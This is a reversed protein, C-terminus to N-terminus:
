CMGNRESLRRYMSGASPEVERGAAAASGRETLVMAEVGTAPEGPSVPKTLQDDPDPRTMREAAEAQGDMIYVQKGPLLEALKQMHHQPMAGGALTMYRLAPFDFDRFNLLEIMTAFTSPVGAFGTAKEDIMKEFVAQPYQFSNELVMSGGAMLHTTFLSKGFSYSFPLIVMIRDDESLHLYESISRANATIKEHSLMVDKPRGTTDSTYVIAAIDEGTLDPPKKMEQESSLIDGLIAYHIHPPIRKRVLKFGRMRREIGVVAQVAPMAGLAEALEGAHSNEVIM